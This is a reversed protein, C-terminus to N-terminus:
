FEKVFFKSKMREYGLDTLEDVPVWRQVSGKKGRFSGGPEVKKKMDSDERVTHLVFGGEEAYDEAEALAELMDEKTMVNLVFASFVLDFEEGKPPLKNSVGTYPDADQEGNFPDYAYVTYGLDRLANAHRGVKGAGFDLIHVNERDTNFERWRDIFEILAKSPGTSAPLVTHKSLERQAQKRKESM